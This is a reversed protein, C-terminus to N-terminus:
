TNPWGSVDRVTGGAPIPNNATQVADAEVTVFVTSNQYENGMNPDFRVERFLVETEGGAPVAENYYYYGDGGDTWPAEVTFRIVDTDLAEEADNRASVGVRIRIWAEAGGTNRVQVIKSVTMGPLVGTIGEPPFDKRETGDLMTEVVSIDVSGTTIVNHARDEATFFAASGAATIALILVIISILLLKRKKM